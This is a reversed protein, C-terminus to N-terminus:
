CKEIIRTQIRQPFNSIRWGTNSRMSPHNCLIMWNEVPDKMTRVIKFESIKESDNLDKYLTTEDFIVDRVMMIRKTPLNFLKYGNHVYGVLICKESRENLKSAYIIKSYAVCGFIRLNSYNPKENKLMEYPTVNGPLARTPSRNILYVATAIAHGWFRNPMGSDFLLARARDLLTRNMREAVGNLAPTDRITYRLETGRSAAHSKFENSTYEGGNDCYLMKIGRENLLTCIRSEYQQYYKFVESKEKLLHVVTYLAYTYEEIFTVFYKEGNMSMEPLSCVDTHVKDLPKIPLSIKRKALPKRSHKAMVCIECVKSENINPLILKMNPYSLHGLRRHIRDEKASVSM